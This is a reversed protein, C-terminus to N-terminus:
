QLRSLPSKRENKKDELDERVLELGEVPAEIVQKVLSLVSLLGKLVDKPGVENATDVGREDAMVYPVTAIGPIQQLALYRHHGDTIMLKDGDDTKVETVVFPKIEGTEKIADVISEVKAEDIERNYPCPLLSKIPIYKVDAM